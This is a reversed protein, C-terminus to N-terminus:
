VRVVEVGDVPLNTGGKGEEVVMVGVKRKEERRLRWMNCCMYCIGINILTLIVLGIVLIFQLPTLQIDTPETPGASVAPILVSFFLISAVLPLTTHNQTQYSM